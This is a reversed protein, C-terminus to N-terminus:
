LNGQGQIADRDAEDVFIADGELLYECILINNFPKGLWYNEIYM